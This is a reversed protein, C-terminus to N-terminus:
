GVGQSKHRRECTCLFPISPSDLDISLLSYSIRDTNYYVSSVDFKDFGQTKKPSLTQLVQRVSGRSRHVRNQWEAVFDSNERPTEERASHMSPYRQNCEVSINTTTMNTSLEADPKSFEEMSSDQIALISTSDEGSGAHISQQRCLLYKRIALIFVAWGIPVFIVLVLIVVVDMAKNFDAFYHFENIITSNRELLIKSCFM